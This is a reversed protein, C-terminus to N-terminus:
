SIFVSFLTSQRCPLGWSFSPANNVSDVYQIVLRFRVSNRRKDRGLGGSPLKRSGGTFEWVIFIWTVQHEIFVDLKTEAMKEM